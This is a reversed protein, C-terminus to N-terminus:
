ATVPRLAHAKLRGYVALADTVMGAYDPPIQPLPGEAPGFGTSAHVTDYWHPAWPGDFPKPGAPWSLMAADFGVGLAACLATLSGRPNERIDASDIVIPAHARQFLADLQAFGLDDATPAERKQLYSAVVRVPHRILFVNQAEAMWALPFRPLMHHAMHKEYQIPTSYDRLQAPVRGPDCEMAAMTEAALPHDLGSEKLFAGYFPEDVATVDARNGFSYMLATSLNRPGSWVAIRM